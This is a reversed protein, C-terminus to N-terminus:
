QVGGNSRRRSILRDVSFRGPGSVLIGIALFLFVTALLGKNTLDMDHYVFAAVFVTTGVFLSAVRTGLGVLILFGGVFESLVACWAFFAPVPFGMEAVDTIFWDQPGWRGDRPLLKEFVTMLPLGCTIRFLLLGIDTSLSNAESGGFFSIRM